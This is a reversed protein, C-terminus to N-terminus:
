NAAWTCPQSCSHASKCYCWHTLCLGTALRAQKSVEPGKPKMKKSNSPAPSSAVRQGGGPGMSVASLMRDDVPFAEVTAITGEQQQHSWLQDAFEALAVLDTLDQKTLLIRLQQPLGQLFLAPFIKSKEDGAPCMELMAAMLQSPPWAGFALMAVLEEVRQYDTLRHSAL